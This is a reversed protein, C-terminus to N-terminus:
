SGTTVTFSITSTYYGNPTTDIDVTEALRVFLAYNQIAIVNKGNEHYPTFSITSTSPFYIYYSNTKSAASGNDTYAITQKVPSYQLALTYDFEANTFSYGEHKLTDHTVTVTVDTNNSSMSWYGIRVGTQNSYSGSSLFKVNDDTLKFSYDGSVAGSYSYDISTSISAVDGLVGTVNLGEYYPDAAFLSFPLILMLVLFFRKVM